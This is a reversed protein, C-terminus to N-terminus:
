QQHLRLVMYIGNQIPEICVITVIGKQITTGSAGGVETLQNAIQIHENNANGVAGKVANSGITLIRTDDVEKTWQILEAAKEDYGSGGAGEQIENGLSWMIIAPDNQGRGVTAKLDFEAWTMNEEAGLIQNGEEITKNFWTAYDNSNTNKHFMWGDFFEDIVIMGKENCVDILASAAPNHTVRISNCGMEKLIEVQREIARRNAEAGLAGQDHHMCVGKLKVNKGNLSFGKETDFSFYRFGYETEYTDVVDEGVKM